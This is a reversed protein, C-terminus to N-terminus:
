NDNCLIYNSEKELLKQRTSINPVVFMGKKFKNPRFIESKVQIFLGGNWEENNLYFEFISVKLLHPCIPPLIKVFLPLLILLTLILNTNESFVRKSSPIKVRESKFISRFNLM